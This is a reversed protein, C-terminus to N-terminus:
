KGSQHRGVKKTGAGKGASKKKASDKTAIAEKLKNKQPPNQKKNKKGAGVPVRLKAPASKPRQTKRSTNSKITAYDPRLELKLLIDSLSEKLNAITKRSASYNFKSVRRGTEDFDVKENKM